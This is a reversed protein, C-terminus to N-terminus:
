PVQQTMPHRRKQCLGQGVHLGADNHRHQLRPWGGVKVDVELWSSLRNSRSERFNEYMNWRSFTQLHKFGQKFMYFKLTGGCRKASHKAHHSGPKFGRGSTHFCLKSFSPFTQFVRSEQGIHDLKIWNAGPCWPCWMDRHIQYSRRWSFFYPKQSRGLASFIICIIHNEGEFM